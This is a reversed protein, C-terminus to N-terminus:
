LRRLLCKLRWVASWRWRFRWLASVFANWRWRVSWPVSWSKKWQSRRSDDLSLCAAPMLLQQRIVVANRVEIIKDVLVEQEIIRERIIPAPAPAPAARQSTKKVVTIEEESDSSSDSPPQPAARQVTKRERRVPEEPTPPREYVVAPEPEYYPEYYM